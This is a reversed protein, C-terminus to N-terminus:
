KLGELKELGAEIVTSWSADMDQRRRDQDRTACPRVYTTRQRSTVTTVPQESTAAAEKATITGNAHIELSKPGAIIICRDGIGDGLKVILANPDLEDTAVDVVTPPLEPIGVARRLENRMTRNLDAKGTHYKSWLGKSFASGTIGGDTPSKVFKDLSIGYTDTEPDHNRLEQYIERYDEATLTDVAANHTLTVATVHAQASSKTHM